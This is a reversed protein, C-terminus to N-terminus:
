MNCLTEAIPELIGKLTECIENVGDISSNLMKWQYESFNKNLNNDEAIIDLSGKLLLFEMYVKSLCFLEKKVTDYLAKGFDKGAFNAEFYKIENGIYQKKIDEANCM